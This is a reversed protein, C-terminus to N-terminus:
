CLAYDIAGRPGRRGNGTNRRPANRRYPHRRHATGGAASEVSARRDIRPRRSGSRTACCSRRPSSRPSRIQSARARSTPRPATSRSTCGRAARQPHRPCCASRDPSCRRRTPSSTASCTAPSSSTSSSPNRVLQMACNDVYMHTLEVDPYNKSRSFCSEGSSRLRSCTRRTSRACASRGSARAELARSAGSRRSATACPTSARACAM